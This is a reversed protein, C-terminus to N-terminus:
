DSLNCYTKIIKFRKVHCPSSGRSYLATIADAGSWVSLFTAVLMLVMGGPIRFILFSIAIFQLATKLKGGHSPAVAISETSAALRLGMVLLERTITVALIWSPIRQLELLAVMVAVILIKDALADISRGLNTALKRKRAIYGDLLDTLLAAIFFCGALLDGWTIYVGFESLFAVHFDIRLSLFFFVFFALIIRAL